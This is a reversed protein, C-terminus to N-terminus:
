AKIMIPVVNRRAIRWGEVTRRFEDHYEAIATIGNLRAPGTESSQGEYFSLYTVGTAQDATVSEMFPLSCVHRSIGAAPRAEMFSLLEARGNLLAGPRSFICDPTFLECLEQYRKHDVLFAFASTLKACAQEVALSWEATAHGSNTM